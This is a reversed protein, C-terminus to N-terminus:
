CQETRTCGHKQELCAPVNQNGQVHVLLLATAFSVSRWPTNCSAELYRRKLMSLPNRQYLESDPLVGCAARHADYQTSATCSNNSKYGALNSPLFSQICRM